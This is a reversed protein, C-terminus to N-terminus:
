QIQVRYFRSGNGTVDNVSQASGNGAITGGLPLWVADSLNTKYQVQYGYGPQTPFSVSMNGGGTSTATLAMSAPPTYAPILTYFNANYNGNDTTVRLTKVSGSNTVQILNGGNDKLPVWTYVQWDGTSPISFTGLRATTQNTTTQGSTVV